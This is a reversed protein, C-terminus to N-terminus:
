YHPVGAFPCPARVGLSLACVSSRTMASSAARVMRAAGVVVRRDDDIVLQSTGRIGNGQTYAGPVAGTPTSVVTINLGAARAQAATHGVACVQPGTFTVRPVVGDSAIDAVKKGLIVSAAVRGHYKGRHTFPARGDGDGIAYLWGEEVGIARLRGDV